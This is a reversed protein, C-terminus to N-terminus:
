RKDGSSLLFLAIGGVILPVVISSTQVANNIGKGVDRIADQGAPTDIARDTVIMLAGLGAIVAGAAFALPATATLLAIAGIALVVVGVKYLLSGEGSNDLAIQEASLSTSEPPLAPPNNADGQWGPYHYFDGFDTPRRWSPNDQRHADDIKQMAPELQIAVDSLKNLRDTYITSAAQDNADVAAALRAYLWSRTQRTWVYLQKCYRVDGAAKQAKPDTVTTGSGGWTTPDYWVGLGQVYGM